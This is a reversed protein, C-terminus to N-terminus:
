GLGSVMAGRGGDGGGDGAGGGGGGRVGRLAVRTGAGVYRSRTGSAGDASRRDECGGEAHQPAAATNGAPGRRAPRNPSFMKAM